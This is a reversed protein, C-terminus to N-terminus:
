RWSRSDIFGDSSKHQLIFASLEHAAQDYTVRQALVAESIARRQLTPTFGELAFIADTQEIAQHFKIQETPSM